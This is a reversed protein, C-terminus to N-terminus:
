VTEVSSAIVAQYYEKISQLQLHPWQNHESSSFHTQLHLLEENQRRTAPSPAQHDYMSEKGQVDEAEPTHEFSFSSSFKYVHSM